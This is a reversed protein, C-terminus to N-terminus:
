AAGPGAHVTVGTQAAEDFRGLSALIIDTTANLHDALLRKTEAADRALAAKLIAHHEANVDREVVRLPVSLRRYRESQSYLMQRLRLLWPSGCASVLSAHFESHASSWADDLRATESPSREPLHSLRHFAALIESEWRVDGQQLAQDLCLGEIEIRVRTLDLLDDRSVLAVSFGKQPEAIVLNDASLRSLAERVSGLSVQHQICLDNIRLKAGPRLRCTLIDDRLLAFVKDAQTKWASTQTSVEVGNTEGHAEPSARASTAESPLATM